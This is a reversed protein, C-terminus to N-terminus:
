IMTVFIKVLNGVKFFDQFAICSEHYKSFGVWTPALDNLIPFLAALSTGAYDQSSVFNETLELLKQLQPHGHPFRTGTVMSWMVNLAMANFQDTVEVTVSGSVASSKIEEVFEKLEEILLSELTSQKGFGFQKLLKHTTKRTEEWYADKSLAIGTFVNTM